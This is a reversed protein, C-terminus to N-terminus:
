AMQRKALGHFVGHQEMLETFNGEEVLKGDQLVYIRDAQRLTSLRHAIVIKTASLTALNEMVEAQSENDLWNTAEDLLLIRPNSFLARAIIIRQSEGGSTAKEGAGVSTLLKMPMKLIERDVTALRTARWVAQETPQHHAGAINDWIDEPHLNVTQPIVGIRRRVQDINLHKLDRGDFYVAGSTPLEVGLMLKLLTSKGAGSEGTIAIFEGARVQLSVNDIVLPSDADYRFSIQDFRIDGTLVDVAAGDTGREPTQQLFPSIQDLTPKISAVASFSAGLRAVASQFTLFISFVVLFKGTTITEMGLFTTSALFLAVGLLPIAASLAQVHEEIRAFQQEARKQDRYGNAWVAFASGEAGELRLVSIGNIMQFLRNAINQTARLIRAQPAIQRVGLLVTVFLSILCIALAVSGLVPEYLYAVIFTPLLFIFSLVGNVVLDQMTDRLTQFTMGRMTTNGASYGNLFHVPLRILRNWFAAEARLIARAEIRIQAMAQLLHLLAGLLAVAVLVLGLTYLSEVRSNPIVDDVIFGLFIAPLLLILSGLIGTVFFRTFDAALRRCAFSFLDWLNAPTSPLPQYFIWAESSLAKARGANVRTKRNGDTDAEWYRGFKGPVLAVPEGDSKRFALLAGCSNLWWRENPDLKVRRARVNSADLIHMLSASVDSFDQKASFKFEIGEYEAISALAQRLVTGETESGSVKTEDYLDFLRHRAVDEDTQQNIARQHALNVQDAVDLRRNLRELSLALNNFKALAPILLGNHLLAETSHVSIQESERLKIWSDRTLPVLSSESSGDLGFEHLDILGMYLGARPTLGSLWLVDDRRVSVVGTAILQESSSDLLLDARTEGLDYRSLMSSVDIVWRSIQETFQTSDIGTLSDLSIRRLKTGPFGKAFLRLTTAETNLEVGPLLRGAAARLIHQPAAQVIGNAHEELFLDVTGEEVLWMFQSDSMDLPLHGSCPVLTASGLINEAPNRDSATM